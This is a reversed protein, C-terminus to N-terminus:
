IDDADIITVPTILTWVLGANDREFKLIAYGRSGMVPIEVFRSEEGSEHLATYLEDLRQQTIKIPEATM